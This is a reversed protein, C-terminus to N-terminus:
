GHDINRIKARGQAAYRLRDFFNRTACWVDNNNFLRNLHLVMGFAAAVLKMAALGGALGFIGVTSSVIPNAEIELGWFSVGLYTFIGDLSQVILFTLVVLDGFRSRQTEWRRYFYAM